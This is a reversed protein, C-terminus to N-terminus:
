GRNLVQARLHEPLPPEREILDAFLTDLSANASVGQQMVLQMAKLAQRTAQAQDASMVERAAGLFNLVWTGAPQAGVLLMDLVQQEGEAECLAYTGRMELVQMPVGMCM